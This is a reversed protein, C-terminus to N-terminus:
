GTSMSDVLVIEILEHPYMQSRLDDLLAPLYDQENYAIVGISLKM